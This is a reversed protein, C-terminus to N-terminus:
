SSVFCNIIVKITMPRISYIFFAKTGVKSHVNTPLVEAFRNYYVYKPVKVIIRVNLINSQNTKLIGDEM